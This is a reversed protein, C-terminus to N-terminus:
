RILSLFHNFSHLQANIDDSFLLLDKLRKMRVVLEFSFKIKMIIKM